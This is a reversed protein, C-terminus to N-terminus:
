AKRKHATPKEKNVVPLKKVEPIPTKTLEALQASITELCRLQELMVELTGTLNGSREFRAM